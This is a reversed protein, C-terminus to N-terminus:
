HVYTTIPHNWSIGGAICGWAASGPAPSMSCDPTQTIPLLRLPSCNFTTPVCARPYTVNCGDPNVRSIYVGAGNFLNGFFVAEFHSYDIAETVTWPISLSRFSVTISQGLANVHAGLCASVSEQEAVSISQGSTWSPALGFVGSYTCTAHYGSQDPQTPRCNASSYPTSGTAVYFSLTRGSPVACKAIYKLIKDSNSGTQYLHNVFWGQFQTVAKPSWLGAALGNRGLGSPLSGNDDLGNDDFGNRDLGNDDALADSDVGLREPEVARDVSAAGCGAIVAVTGAIFGCKLYAKSVM